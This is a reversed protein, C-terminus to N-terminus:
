EDINILEILDDASKQGIIKGISELVATFDDWVGDDVRMVGEGFNFDVLAQRIQEFTERSHDNGEGCIWKEYADLSERFFEVLADSDPGYSVPLNDRTEYIFEELNNRAACRQTENDDNQKMNLQSPILFCFIVIYHYIFILHLIRISAEDNQFHKIFNSSMKLSKLQIEINYTSKLNVYEKVEGTITAADNVDPSNSSHIDKTVADASADADPEPENVNEAIKSFQDSNSSSNNADSRRLFFKKKVENVM